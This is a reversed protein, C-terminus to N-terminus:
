DHSDNDKNMAEIEEWSHEFDIIVPHHQWSRETEPPLQMYNGFMLTLFEDWKKFCMFSDDEFPLEIYENAINSPFIYNLSSPTSVSVFPLSTDENIKRLREVFRKRYKM